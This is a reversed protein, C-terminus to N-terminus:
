TTCCRSLGAQMREPSDPLVGITAAIRDATKFGVGRVDLALRYPARSVVNMAHPGYRKVIRTALAPSAGHAQLFVM